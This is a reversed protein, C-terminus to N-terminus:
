SRAAAIQWGFALYVLENLMLWGLVGLAAILAVTVSVPSKAPHLRLRLGVFFVMLLV